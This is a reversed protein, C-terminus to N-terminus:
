SCSWLTTNRQQRLRQLLCFENEAEVDVSLVESSLDCAAASVICAALVDQREMSELAVRRVLRRLHSINSTVHIKRQRIEMVINPKELGSICHQLARLPRSASLYYSLGLREELAHEKYSNSFNFPLAVKDEGGKESM